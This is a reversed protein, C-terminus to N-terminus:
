VHSVAKSARNAVSHIRRLRRPSNHVLIGYARRDRHVRLDHTVDAGERRPAAAQDAQAAGAQQGHDQDAGESERGEGVPPEHELVRAARHQARRGIQERADDDPAHPQPPEADAGVLALHGAQALGYPGVEPLIQEGGDLEGVRGAAVVIAGVPVSEMM